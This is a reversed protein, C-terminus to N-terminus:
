RSTKCINTSIDVCDYPENFMCRNIGPDCFADWAGFEPCYIENNFNCNSYGSGSCAPASPCYTTGPIGCRKDGTAGLCVDQGCCSSNSTCTGGCSPSSPGSQPGSEPVCEHAANCVEGTDCDSHQLCIEECSSVYGCDTPCVNCAEWIPNCFGDGCCEYGQDGCTTSPFDQDFDYQTLWCTADCGAGTGCLDECVHSFAKASVPANALGGWLAAMVIVLFTKRTKM